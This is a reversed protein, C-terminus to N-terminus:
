WKQVFNADLYVMGERILMDINSISNRYTFIGVAINKFAHQNADKKMSAFEVTRKVILSLVPGLQDLNQNKYLDTIYRKVDRFLYPIDTKYVKM